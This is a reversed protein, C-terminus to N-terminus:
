EGLRGVMARHLKALAMRRLDMSLNHDDRLDIQVFYAAANAALSLAEDVHKYM